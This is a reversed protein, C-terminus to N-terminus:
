VETHPAFFKTAFRRIDYPTLDHTVQKGLVLHTILRGTIPALLIGNRFHGAALFLGEVPTKGLIPLNDKSRPRLGAWCERFSLAGLDPNVEMVGRVLKHLGKVTVDKDYGVSEVTSGVIIRGDNRTVMYVKRTYIMRSFLPKHQHLVLIQGRSPKVPISFPLTKDFDAWAGAANIVVPSEIKEGGAVVGRLKSDEIWIKVATSGLLFEVGLKRAWAEMARVLKINDVQCDEPFYLGKTVNPGAWSEKKRIESGSIWEVEVESKKQWDFKEQLSTEDEENFALYFLGSNRFETELGTEKEVEEIFQPYLALSDRLLSFFVTKGRPGGHPALIGAAAVSAEAGPVHKELVAVKLKSKRLECAISCGIIGGGVVVADFKKM